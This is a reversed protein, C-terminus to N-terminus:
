NKESRSNANRENKGDAFVERVKYSRGVEMFGMREYMLKPTDELDATLYIDHINRKKLDELVFRFLAQGYGKKQYEDLICFDELKAADNYLFSCIFGVPKEKDYVFYWDTKKLDLAVGVERKSNAKAYEEGYIKSDLYLIRTLEERDSEEVKKVKYETDRLIQIGYITSHYEVENEHYRFKLKGTYPHKLEFQVFGDRPYLAEMISDDNDCVYYNHYYKSKLEDDHYYIYDKHVEKKCFTTIYAEEIDRWLIMQKMLVFADEGNSYYGKRVSIQKFGFKSYLKIARANSERVELIFSEAKKSHLLNIAYALLKTGIGLGQSAKSVCFNLIEGQFGDFNISIYGLVQNKEEYVYYHAFSNNLDNKLMEEGLTVGLTALELAVIKPIDKDRYLRIM